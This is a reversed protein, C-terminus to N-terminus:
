NLDFDFLPIAQHTVFVVPIELNLESSDLNEGVTEGLTRSLGINLIKIALLWSAM